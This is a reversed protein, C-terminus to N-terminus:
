HRETCPGLNVQRACFRLEIVSRCLMLIPEHLLLPVINTAIACPLRGFTKAFSVNDSRRESTIM